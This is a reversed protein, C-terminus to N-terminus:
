YLCVCTCNTIHTFTSGGDEWHPKNHTHLHFRWGGLTTQQTHSLPVEWGGLTHTFTSGGMQVGALKSSNNPKTNPRMFNSTTALSVLTCKMKISLISPPSIHQFPISFPPHSPVTTQSPISFVINSHLLIRFSM